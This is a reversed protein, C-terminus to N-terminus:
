HSSRDLDSGQKWSTAASGQRPRQEVPLGSARSVKTHSHQCVWVIPFSPDQSINMDNLPLCNVSVIKSVSNLKYLMTTLFWLPSSGAEKGPSTQFPTRVTPPCRRRANSAPSISHVGPQRGVEAGSSLSLGGSPSSLGLSSCQGSM